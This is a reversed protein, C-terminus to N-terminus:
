PKKNSTDLCSDKDEYQRKKPTNFEVRSDYYRNHKKQNFGRPKGTYFSENRNWQGYGSPKGYFRNYRQFDAEYRVYEHRHPRARPSEHRRDEYPHHRRRGNYM